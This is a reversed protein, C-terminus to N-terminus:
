PLGNEQRKFCHKQHKLFTSWSASYPPLHPIKPYTLIFVNKRCWTELCLLLEQGQGRRTLGWRPINTDLLCQKDNGNICIM